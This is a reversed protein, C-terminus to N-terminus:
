QTNKDYYARAEADDVTLGTRVYKNFLRSITMQERFETRYQELTLGEKALAAEFEKQDMKNRKMIDNVADSLEKDTVDLGTKKAEAMQLKRDIMDDLMVREDKIDTRKSLERQLDSMTIVEGNVVAVVRDLVVPADAALGRGSLMIIAM